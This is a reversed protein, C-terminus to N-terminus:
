AGCVSLLFEECVRGYKGGDNNAVARFKRQNKDRCRNRGSVVLLRSRGSSLWSAALFLGGVM